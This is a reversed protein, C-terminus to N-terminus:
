YNEKKPNLFYYFLNYLRIYKLYQIELFYKLIYARFLTTFYVRSADRM